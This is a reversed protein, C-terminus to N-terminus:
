TVLRLRSRYYAREAEDRLAMNGRIADAAQLAANGSLGAARVMPLLADDFSAHKRAAAKVARELLPQPVHATTPDFATQARQQGPTVGSAQAQLGASTSLRVVNDHGHIGRIHGSM